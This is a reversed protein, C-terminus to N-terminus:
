QITGQSEYMYRPSEPTLRDLYEEGSIAEVPLFTSPLAAPNADGDLALTADWITGGGDDTTVAHYRFACGWDGFPCRDFEAGGIAQIYNLDFNWGIITYNLRAGVMNAFAGLIAACDTCNVVVGFRRTLFDALYFNARTWDDGIYEVYASAGYTTDYRLGNEWYIWEVLANIVVDHDPETGDIARLAPDIVAPWSHYKAGGDEFGSADLLSYIRVPLQQAGLLWDGGDVDTAHLELAWTEEILGVHDSLAEDKMLVVPTGVRLPNGSLVTWGDLELNVDANELGNGGLLTSEGPVLTVIPRSDYAFALPEAEARRGLDTSVAPFSAATEDPGDISALRSFPESDDQLSGSLHFYLPERVSIIGDGEAFAEVFGARVVALERPEHESLLTGNTDLVRAEVTYVGVPARTTGDALRGPWDYTLSTADEFPESHSWITTGSPDLLAVELTAGVTAEATFGISAVPSLLPDFAPPASVAVAGSRVQADTDVVDIDGSGSCALALTLLLMAPM